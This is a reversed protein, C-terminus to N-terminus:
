LLNCYIEFIDLLCTFLHTFLYCSSTDGESISFFAQYVSGQESQTLPSSSAGHVSQTDPQCLLELGLIINEQM